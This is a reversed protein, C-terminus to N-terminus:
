ILMTAAFRKNSRFLDWFIKSLFAPKKVADTATEALSPKRQEVRAVIQLGLAHFTRVTFVRGTRAQGSHGSPTMFGLLGRRAFTRDERSVELRSRHLM